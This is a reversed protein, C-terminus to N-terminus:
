PAYMEDGYILILAHVAEFTLWRSPEGLREESLIPTTKMKSWRGSQDQLSLVRNLIHRTVPDDRRATHALMHCLEIVDTDYYRPFRPLMWEADEGDLLDPGAQRWPTEAGQRQGYAPALLYDCLLREIEQRGEVPVEGEAGTPSSCHILAGLLKVAGARCSREDVAVGDVGSLGAACNLHVPDDRIMEAAVRWAVSVEPDRGYGFHTLTQLAMGTYSLWPASAAGEPAFLQDQRRGRALLNECTPGVEPFRPAGMQALLYLTGFNGLFGGFYPNDIRGWFHYADWHRRLMEVPKWTLIRQQEALLEQEPQRYIHRLTQYRVSPNGPDLLWPVPDRAVLKMWHM